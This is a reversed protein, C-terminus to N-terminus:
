LWEADRRRYRPWPEADPALPAGRSLWRRLGRLLARAFAERYEDSELVPEERRNVLVGCEVLIAPMRSSALVAFDASMVGAASDLVERGEGFATDAHSLNAPVGATRLSIGIERALALAQPYGTTSDHVFLCFGRVDDCYRHRIGKWCWEKLFRDQVADHHISLFLDAGARRAAETRTRLGREGGDENHVVVELGMSDRLVRAIARAMPLNVEFERVGRPSLAGPGPGGPIRIGPPYHGVDLFVRPRANWALTRSRVPLARRLLEASRGLRVPDQGAFPLLLDRRPEAGPRLRSPDFAAGCTDWRVPDPRPLSDPMRALAELFARRGATDVSETMAAFLSPAVGSSSRALAEVSRRAASWNRLSDTDTPLPVIWVTPKLAVLSDFAGPAARSSAVVIRAGGSLARRLASAPSGTDLWVVVPRGEGAVPDAFLARGTSGARAAFPFLAVLLLLIRM